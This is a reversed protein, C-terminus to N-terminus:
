FGSWSSNEWYRIVTQHGLGWRYPGMLKFPLHKSTGGQIFHQVTAGRCEPLWGLNMIRINCLLIARNVKMSRFISWVVFSGRFHSRIMSRCWRICHEIPIGSFLLPSRCSTFDTRFERVNCYLSDFYPETSNWKPNEGTDLTRKTCAKNHSITSLLAYLGSSIHANSLAKPILPHSIQSRAVVLHGVSSYFLTVMNSDVGASDVQIRSLLDNWQARNAAHVGEFDFDPIEEEANACAQASSIFSVGVRVLISTAGGAPAPNFTLLAGMQSVFGPPHRSFRYVTACLSDPYVMIHRFSILQGGSLSTRCGCETSPPHALPIAKQKSTLALSHM